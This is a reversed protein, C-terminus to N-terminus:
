PILPVLSGDIAVGFVDFFGEEYKPNETQMFVYKGIQFSVVVVWFAFYLAGSEIILAFLKKVQSARPGAVIYGRLRKWSRLAKFGVLLTSVLNTALSLVSAAVGAPFAAYMFGVMLEITQIHGHVFAM